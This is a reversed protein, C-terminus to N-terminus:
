SPRIQAARAAKATRYRKVERLRGEYSKTARLPREFEAIKRTLWESKTPIDIGEPLKNARLWNNLNRHLPRDEAFIVGRHMVGAAIEPAYARAAFRAPDEGKIRDREWKLREPGFSSSHGPGRPCLRSRDLFNQLVSVSIGYYDAVYSLVASINM